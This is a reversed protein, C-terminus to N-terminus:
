VSLFVFLVFPVPHCSKRLLRDGPSGLVHFPVFLVSLPRVTM